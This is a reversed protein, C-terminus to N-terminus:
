QFNCVKVIRKKVFRVIKRVILYLRGLHLDHVYKCVVVDKVYAHGEIYQKLFIILQNWEEKLQNDSVVYHVRSATAFMDLTEMLGNKAQPFLTTMYVWQKFLRIETKLPTKGQSIGNSLRNYVGSVFNLCHVKGISAMSLNAFIDGYVILDSHDIPIVRDKRKVVTCTPVTWKKAIEEISFDREELHAYMNREKEIHSLVEVNTFCMVCDEHEEMYDVQKQLKYPDTWYDDGECMAIYKAQADWEAIIPQKKGTRYLNKKLFYFAFHCNPNDKANIEVLEYLEDDKTTKSAADCQESIYQRLVEPEGDTSADDMVIAVFPFNTQQMIFGHLADLIYPRQNYTMCHICVIYKYQEDM